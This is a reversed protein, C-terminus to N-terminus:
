GSPEFAELTQRLLGRLAPDPIEELRIFTQRDVKARLFGRSDTELAIRRASFEPHRALQEELMARLDDLGWSPIASPSAETPAALAVVRSVVSRLAPDLIEDPETYSNGDTEIAWTGDRAAVSLTKARELVVPVEYSAPPNAAPVRFLTSGCTGCTLLGEGPSLAASCYPCTLGIEERAPPPDSLMAGLTRRRRVLAYSVAGGTALLALAVIAWIAWGAADLSPGSRMRGLATLVVLILGLGSVALLLIQLRRPGRRTIEQRPSEAAAPASGKSDRPVADSPPPTERDEVPKSYYLLGLGVLGLAVAGIAVIALPM